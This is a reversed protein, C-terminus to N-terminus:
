LYPRLLDSRSKHQLRRIAREIIQRIRERSLDLEEGIEVLTMACDQDIGYYMKIVSRERSTLTALAHRMDENRSDDFLQNDPEPFFEDPMTDLPSQSSTDSYPEDLSKHRLSVILMHAIKDLAKNESEAIDQASAQRENHSTLEEAVKGLKNSETLINRPVRVLRSHDSLSKFISKKIWWVAYTIFKFGRTEDFGKIAQILGINGAAILDELELGRGQYKKAVSVVFGLNAEILEREAEKDGAKIRRVLAVEESPSLNNYRRIEEFYNGLAKNSEKAM